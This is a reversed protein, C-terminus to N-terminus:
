LMNSHYGRTCVLINWACFEIAQSDYYGSNFRVRYISRPSDLANSTNKFASVLQRICRQNEEETNPVDGAPPTWKAGGLRDEAERFCSFHLRDSHSLGPIPSQQFGESLESNAQEEISGPAASSSTAIETIPPTSLEIRPRVSDDLDSNSCALQLTKSINHNMTIAQLL